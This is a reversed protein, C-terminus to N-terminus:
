RPKRSRPCSWTESDATGREGAQARHHRSDLEVMYPEGGLEILESSVLVDCNEGSKRRIKLEIDSIKGQLRVAGIFGSREEPNAWLNLEITTRGIVEERAYGFLSLFSDNVDVLRGDPLSSISTGIPSARFVTSFREESERLAEEALKRETIDRDMGRYGAFKGHEDFIPVRDSELVVLRGDKHRCVNELRTFPQIELSVLPIMAELRVAEAPQMLDYPTKGVVEAVEYGLIDKVRPSIYTFAGRPDIEWILDSTMEVLDRFKRESQRLDAEAQKRATIDRATSLAGIVNGLSDKLTRCWWALLRKQGDRRRQWSEVYVTGEEGSFVPQVTSYTDQEGEFYFAAEKGIADEGFFDLAAQSAWTYIKHSDVEVVIEPIATLLAIQRASLLKLRQEALKLETIDEVTGEYDLVNGAGDRVSRASESVYVTKGDQKKWASQLGVVGGEAEVRRRASRAYNPEFGNEELNRQSLEQISAYGSMKVLAPNAMLVRGDPTTQYMGVTANEFIERFREESERLSREARKRDSNDLVFAVGRFRGEDLMASALIIPVRTGDKRIYEKEYATRNIGAAKLEAVSDDDFRRYEPPTMNVWDIRGADLDARKYGVIELFKDNAETIQGDMNWYIVGVLGSDYFRRLREESARLADLTSKRGTIDRAFLLFRGTAPWFSVSIEVDLLGGDKKRHRTEFRDFGTEAIRRIHNAVDGPTGVAELDQIRLGLLEERSYGILRCYADNVDLLRGERDFLWFGDPTTALMAAYQDAWLRADVDARPPQHAPRVAGGRDSLRRPPRKPRSVGPAAKKM